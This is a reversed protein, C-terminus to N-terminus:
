YKAVLNTCWEVEYEGTLEGEEFSLAFSGAALGEDELADVILTGERAKYVTLADDVVTLVRADVPADGELSVNTEVVDTEEFTFLLTVMDYDTPATAGNEYTPGRDIWAMDECSSETNTFALYPGGWYFSTANLKTGDVQGSIDAFTDAGCGVLTATLLLATTRLHPM